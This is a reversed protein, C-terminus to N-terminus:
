MRWQRVAPRYVVVRYRESSQVREYGASTLVGDALELLTGRPTIGRWCPLSCDDLGALASPASMTNGAYIASLALAVFLPPFIITFGLLRLM